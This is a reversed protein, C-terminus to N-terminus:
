PRGRAQQLDRLPSRRRLLLFAGVVGLAGVDAGGTTSCGKSSVPASVAIRTTATNSASDTVRVVDTVGGAGGATYAGSTAHITGGSPNSALSWVYGIGSGGSATFTATGGTGVTPNAPSIVVADFAYSCTPPAVPAPRTAVGTAGAQIRFTDSAPKEPTGAQVLVYWTGVADLSLTAWGASCAQTAPASKTSTVVLTTPNVVVATGNSAHLTATVGSKSCVRVQGGSGTVNVTVQFPSVAWGIDQLKTEGAYLPFLRNCRDFARRRAVCDVYTTVAPKEPFLATATAQFTKGYSDFTPSTGGALQVTEYQIAAAAECAGSCGKVNAGQLGQFVEWFLGAWIQGDDHVEGDMGNVVGSVGRQTVLTGNGQCTRSATPDNADRLYPTPPSYTSASFSNFQSRGTRADNLADATGENIAGPEFLLGMADVEPIFDGWASVVAHTFEHYVVTADYANDDTTEQGFVMGDLIPSYYANNYPAGDRYANVLAPISGRLARKGAPPLTPDLGKLFTAFRDLHYYAMAGAFADTPSIWTTDPSFSFGGSSAPVLSCSGPVAASDSPVDSGMCNYVTAQSGTLDAGTTLNQLTVTVPSACFELGGLGTEPCRAAATEVPSVEYVRAPATAHRRLDTRFLVRGTEGDVYVRWDGAPERAMFDVQYVARLEGGFQRYGREVTAPGPGYLTRGFSGLATTVVSDDGLGHSGTTIPSVETTNVLFVRNGGEVGVVLDGGFVPLGGVLRRFHVAGVSGPNPFTLPQLEHLASVGFAAGQADLFARAAEEPLREGTAALFGSAHTLTRGDSAHIRVSSPNREAFSDAPAAGLAACLVLTTWM